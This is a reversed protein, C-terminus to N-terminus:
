DKREHEDYITIKIVSDDVLSERGNKEAYINEEKM